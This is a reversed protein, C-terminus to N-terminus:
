SDLKKLYMFCAVILVLFILLVVVTWVVTPDSFWEEIWTKNSAAATTLIPDAGDTAVFGAPLIFAGALALIALISKKFM